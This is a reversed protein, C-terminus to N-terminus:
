GPLNPPVERIIKIKGAFQCPIIPVGKIGTKWLVELVDM